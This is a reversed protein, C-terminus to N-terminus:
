YYTVYNLSYFKPFLFIHVIIIPEGITNILLIVARTWVWLGISVMTAFCFRDVNLKYNLHFQRSIRGHKKVIFGCETPPNYKTPM